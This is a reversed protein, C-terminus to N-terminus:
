GTLVLDNVEEISGVRMITLQGNDVEDLKLHRDEPIIISSFGLKQVERIRQKLDVVTRIEGALGIEGVVALEPPLPLDHFSSIIAALVGLDLGPEELKLGGPLNLHIDQESLRLGLHKELVAILLVLRNFEIGSTMRRPNGFSKQTVLAQLEVLLPRSGEMCPVIVSGSVGTPRQEIFFRSPNKVEELGDATMQFVGLERTAGYRNKVGRLIRYGKDEEGELYLVTDVMHELLKPGALAGEKTVHGILALTIGKGKALQVLQSTVEQVQKISGPLSKLGARRISQVSDIVVFVPNLKEVAKLILELDTEALIYLHDNLAGLRQARLKIQEGSEEGSIYLVCGGGAALFFSTQLLLTSKGIGPDGGLLIVSGPVMGGGLVRDLEQSQTSIRLERKEKIEVIPVPVASPRSSDAETM